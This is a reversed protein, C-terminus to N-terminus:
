RAGFGGDVALITGTAYPSDLLFAIARAIDVPAGMRKSPFMDTISEESYSGAEIAQNLISTKIAGPAVANVTIGKTAYELAATKTLGV